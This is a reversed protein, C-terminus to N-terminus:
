AAGAIRADMARLAPALIKAIQTRQEATLPPAQDVLERIHRWYGPRDGDPPQAALEEAATM